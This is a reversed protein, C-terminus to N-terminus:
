RSRGDDDDSVRHGDDDHGSATVIDTKADGANGSITRTFTCSYTDDPQITQPVDCSGKGDLDIAEAPGAGDPDDVLSTITVPDSSVSSNKVQVTFEVPGGPEPLPEPNATKTM